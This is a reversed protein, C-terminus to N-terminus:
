QVTVVPAGQKAAKPKKKIPKKKAIKEPKPQDPARTIEKLRGSAFTYFGPWTGGLYTLVVHREGKDDVGIVVNSALGARRVVDCETMELAIGGLIPAADPVSAAAPPNAAVPMPAGALDGAVSGVPRDPPPPPPAAPQAPAQPVEAMAQVACRGDPGVLDEPRVPGSPGLSVTQNSSASSWDPKTLVSFPKSFLGSDSKRDLVDSAGSCGAVAAALTAACVFSCIVSRRPM